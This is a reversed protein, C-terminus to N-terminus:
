KGKTRRRGAGIGPNTWPLLSLALGALSLELYPSYAASLLYRIGQVAMSTWPIVASPTSLGALLMPLAEPLLYLLYFPLYVWVLFSFIRRTHGSSLTFGDRVIEGASGGEHLILLYPCLFFRCFFWLCGVLFLLSLGALLAFLLDPAEVARSFALLLNLPYVCFGPLSMFAGVLLAQGLLAPRRYFHLLERDPAEDRALTLAIRTFGMTLPFALLTIGWSILGNWWGGEPLSLGILGGVLSPLGALLALPLLFGRKWAYLERARNRLARGERKERSDKM